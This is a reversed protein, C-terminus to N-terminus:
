KRKKPMYSAIAIAMVIMGWFFLKIFAHEFLAYFFLALLISMGLRYILHHERYKLSKNWLIGFIAITIIAFISTGIIGMYNLMSIVTNHSGSLRPTSLTPIYVEKSRQLGEGGLPHKLFEDIHYKWIRFRADKKLHEISTKSEIIDKVKEYDTFYRIAMSMVVIVVVFFITFQIKRNRSSHIIAPLKFFIVGIIMAIYTGRSFTIVLSVIVVAMAM